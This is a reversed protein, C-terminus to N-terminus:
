FKSSIQPQCHLSIFASQAGRGSRTKTATDIDAHPPWLGAETKAMNELCWRGDPQPNKTTITTPNQQEQKTKSVPYGQGL